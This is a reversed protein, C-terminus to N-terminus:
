DSRTRLWTLPDVPDGNQRIEFYVIGAPEKPLPNWIGTPATGALGLVGGAPVKEKEQVRIEQLGGYITFLQSDHRLLVISGYSGFPGRYLVQGAEVARVPSRPDTRVHIGNHLIWSDLEPHKQKGFRNLPDGRVPWPLERRKWALRRPSHSSKQLREILFELNQASRHLQALSQSLRRKREQALDMKEQAKAYREKARENEGLAQQRRRRLEQANQGLKELSDALGSEKQELERFESIQRLLATRHFVLLPDPQKQYRRASEGLHKKQDQITQQLVEEKEELREQQTQLRAIRGDLREANQFSSQLDEQLVQLSKELQSEQKQTKQLSASKKQIKQQVASLEERNQSLKGPQSYLAEPALLSLVMLGALGPPAGRANGQSWIALIWGSAAFSMAPLLLGSPFVTPTLPSPTQIPPALLQILEWSALGFCLSLCSFLLGRRIAEPSDPSHRWLLYFSIFLLVALLFLCASGAVEALRQYRQLQLITQAPAQPAHVSQVFPLVELKRQLLSLQSFARPKLEISFFASLPNEPLGRLAQGAEPDAREMERLADTKSLYRASRIEPFAGLRRRWSSPDAKKGDSLFVLVRFEKRLAQEAQRAHRHTLSLYGGGIGLLCGLLCALYSWREWLLRQLM